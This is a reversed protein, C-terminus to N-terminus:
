RHARESDALAARFAVGLDPRVTHGSAVTLAAALHGQRAATVPDEGALLGRVFGATMADGAGTVDTVEAEVAAIPVALDESVLLSGGSGRSVWVHSVGRAHLSRAASVIAPEDDRVDRGALAALEDVNPTVAFVPRGATLLPAIRTAKAVSVPELVVKVGRPAAVGLVWDAVEAPINADVVVVAAHGILEQSGALAEVGMADTAAFDSLGVVLEGDVDLAALYSATAHATSAFVRDVYVGAEATRALLEGGAADAGVASVLHVRGELRAIGEAINRGVGGPTRSVTAPNSTHLRTAAGSRAKVDWAAGGVVVAWPEDRLVYGRGVIEGKQTLSSLAVAVAGKTTGLRRALGAADLMPQARLLALIERERPSLSM